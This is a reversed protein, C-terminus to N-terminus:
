PRDPAPDVAPSADGNEAPAPAAPLEDDPVESDIFGEEDLRYVRLAFDQLQLGVLGPMASQVQGLAAALFEEDCTASLTVTYRDSM